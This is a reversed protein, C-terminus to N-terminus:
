DQYGYAVVQIESPNPSLSTVVCTLQCQPDLSYPSRLWFPKSANGLSTSFPLAQASWLQQKGADFFQVAFGATSAPNEGVPQDVFSGLLAAIKLSSRTTFSDRQTDQPQVIGSFIVYHQMVKGYFQRRNKQNPIQVGSALKRYNLWVGM